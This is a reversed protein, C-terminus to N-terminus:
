PLTDILCDEVVLRCPMEIELAALESGVYDIVRIRGAYQIFRVRRSTEIEIEANFSENYARLTKLRNKRRHIANEELKTLRSAKFNRKSQENVMAAYRVVDPNLNRHQAKEIAVARILPNAVARYRVEVRAIRQHKAEVWDEMKDGLGGELHEMQWAVHAVMLHVKPTVSCGIKKHCDFAATAFHTYEYIDQQRPNNRRAVAFAGDWLLFLNTYQQCKDRIKENSLICRDRKGSVLLNAFSQFIFEANNMIKLIDKGTFSGGHYSTLEVGYGKLVKLMQTELGASSKKRQSRFVKLKSRIENNYGM